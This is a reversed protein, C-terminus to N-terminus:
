WVSRARQLVHVIESGAFVLGYTGHAAEVLGGWARQDEPWVGRPAKLEIGVFRGIPPLPVGCSPCSLRTPVCAILDASGPCLGYHIHRGETEVYGVTNRWHLIDARALEARAESTVDRERRPAVARKPLKPM